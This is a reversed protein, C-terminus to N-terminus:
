RSQCPSFTYDIWNNPAGLCRTFKLPYLIISRPAQHTQPTHLSPCRARVHASSLQHQPHGTRHMTPHKADQHKDMLHWYYGVGLEPMLFTGLVNGFTHHLLPELLWQKVFSLTKVEEQLAPWPWLLWAYNSLHCCGQSAVIWLAWLISGSLPPFLIEGPFFFSLISFCFYDSCACGSSGTLRSAFRNWWLACLAM